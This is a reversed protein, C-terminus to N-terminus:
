DKNTVIFFQEIPCIPLFRDYTMQLLSRGTGLVDLFQKPKEARSYPWFGAESGRRGYDSCLPPENISNGEKLLDSIHIFGVVKQGDAVILQSIDWERMLNLARIAYEGKAVTKPHPTMIENVQLGEFHSHKELMRRLDGDTIVGVLAEDENVVAAAGLVNGPFKM